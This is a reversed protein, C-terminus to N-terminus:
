KRDASILNVSITGIKVFHFIRKEQNGCFHKKQTRQGRGKEGEREEDRKKGRLEM